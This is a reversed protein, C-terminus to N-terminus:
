RAVEAPARATVREPTGSKTAEAGPDGPPGEAHRRRLLADVQVGGLFVVALLYLVSLLIFVSALNGFVSEYSAIYKLYVVYGGAAVLWGGVVLLSGVSVWQAQQRVAPTFRLLLWVITLLVVASFGWRVLYAVPALGVGLSETVDDGFAICFIVAILLPLIVVATLISGITRKIWSRDEEVEYALNLPGSTSRVVASLQWLTFLVGFTLWLFRKSGLADQATRDVLRFVDPSLTDKAELRLEGNWTEQLGLYGLLAAATLAMPVIAMLVRFAVASAYTLLDRDAFREVLERPLGNM